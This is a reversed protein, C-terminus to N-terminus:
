IEISDKIGLIKYDLDENKLAKELTPLDPNLLTIVNSVKGM